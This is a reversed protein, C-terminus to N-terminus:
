VHICIYIYIYIYIYIHTHIYVLINHKNSLHKLAKGLSCKTGSLVIYLPTKNKLVLINNMSKLKSVNYMIMNRM